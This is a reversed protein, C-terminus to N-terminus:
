QEQGSFPLMKSYTNIIFNHFILYYVNIKIMSFFIIEKKGVKYKFFLINVKKFANKRYNERNYKFYFEIYCQVISYTLM